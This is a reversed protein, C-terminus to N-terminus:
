HQSQACNAKGQSRCKFHDIVANTNLVAQKIEESLCSRYKFVSGIFADIDKQCAALSGDKKYIQEDDVCSPPAIPPECYQKFGIKVTDQAVLEKLSAQPQPSLQLAARSASVSNAMTEVRLRISCLRV